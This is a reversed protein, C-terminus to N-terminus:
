LKGGCDGVRNSEMGVVGFIFCDQNASNAVETDEEEIEVAITNTVLTSLVAVGETMAQGEVQDDKDEADVLNRAANEQNTGGTGRM